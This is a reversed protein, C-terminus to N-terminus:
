SSRRWRRPISGLLVADFSVSNATCAYTGSSTGWAAGGLGQTVPIEMRQGYVVASGVLRFDAAVAVYTRGDDANMAGKSYGSVTIVTEPADPIQVAYQMDQALLTVNGFQDVEMTTRGGVHSAANGMQTALVEAMDAGDAEWVGLLCSDIAAAPTALVATLFGILRFM